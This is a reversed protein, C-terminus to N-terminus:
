MKNDFGLMYFNNIIKSVLYNQIYYKLTKVTKCFFLGALHLCSCGISCVLPKKQM